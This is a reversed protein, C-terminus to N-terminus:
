SSHRECWVLPLVEEEEEEDEEMEKVINRATKVLGGGEVDDVLGADVVDDGANSEAQATV